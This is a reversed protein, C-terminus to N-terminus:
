FRSRCGNYFYPPNRNKGKVIMGKAFDTELSINDFSIIDVPNDSINYKENLIVKSFALPTKMTKDQTFDVEWEGTNEIISGLTSFNRKFFFQYNEERACGRDIIM